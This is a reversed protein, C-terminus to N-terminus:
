TQRLGKRGSKHRHAATVTERVAMDHAAQRDHPHILILIFKGTKKGEKRLKLPWNEPWGSALSMDSVHWRRKVLAVTVITM